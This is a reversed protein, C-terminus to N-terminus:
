PAQSRRDTRADDAAQRTEALRDMSVTRELRMRALKAKIATLADRMQKPDFAENVRNV